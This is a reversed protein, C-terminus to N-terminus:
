IEGLPVETEYYIIRGYIDRGDYEYHRGVFSWRHTSPNWVLCFKPNTMGMYPYLRNVVDVVYSLKSAEWRDTIQYEKSDIYVKLDGYLNQPCTEDQVYFMAIVEDPTFAYDNLEPCAVYLTSEYGPTEVVSRDREISSINTIPVLSKDLFRDYRYFTNADLLLVVGVVGAAMLMVLYVFEFLSTVNKM